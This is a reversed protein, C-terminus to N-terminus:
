HESFTLSRNVSESWVHIVCCMISMCMQYRSLLTTYDTVSIVLFCHPTHGHFSVDVEGATSAAPNVHACESDAEELGVCAQVIECTHILFTAVTQYHGM